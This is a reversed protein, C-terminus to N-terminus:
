FQGKGCTVYPSGSFATGASTTSMFNGLSGTYTARVKQKDMPKGLSDFSTQGALDFTYLASSGKLSDIGSQFLYLDTIGRICRSNFVTGNPRYTVVTLGWDKGCANKIQLLGTARPWAASMTLRAPDCCSLAATALNGTLTSAPSFNQCTQTLERFDVRIVVAGQGALLKGAETATGPVQTAAMNTATGLFSQLSKVSAILQGTLTAKSLSEATTKNFSAWMYSLWPVTAGMIAMVVMLEILNIGRPKKM